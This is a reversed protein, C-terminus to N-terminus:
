GNFKGLIRCYTVQDSVIPTLHYGEVFIKPDFLAKAHTAQVPRPTYGRQQGPQLQDRPKGNDSRKPLKAM